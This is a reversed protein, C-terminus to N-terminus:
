SHTWEGVGLEKLAKELEVGRSAKLLVTDGSSLERLYAVVGDMSESWVANRLGAEMAAEYALRCDGGELFLASAPNADAIMRGVERHSEVSIEGLERMQGMVLHKAGKSPVANLTELAVSFSDPSANYADFVITLGKYDLAQMRGMPLQTQRIAEAADTLSVGCNTAVLIALAANLAMHRGVVPLQVGVERGGCRIVCRASSWSEAKYDLVRCDAAESFGFTAFRHGGERSLPAFPSPRSPSAARERLEEIYDDEAWAISLGGDPLADYLETKARVIGERSGVLEMHAHGIMTIVGITPLHFGALHAIQGFGRMGMEAVVAAEDGEMEPWLLPGTWESNRNGRTKGVKGLPALAAAIFEKASTKGVSGTVGVVPGQYEKRFSRAMDALANAVNPVLIHPGDVPQEVLAVSAGKEFASAVFDHGDVKEGRIAIFMDGAKVERNDTAFGTVRIQSSVNVPTGILRYCLDMALRNM